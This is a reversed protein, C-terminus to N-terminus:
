LNAIILLSLFAIASITAILALINLTKMTKEKLASSLLFFIAIGILGGLTNGILDTIDSAGIAFIFQLSEYLFSLLFASVIKVTIKLKDGIMSIYIGFPVFAAINLIIESIDIKGNKVASGAYPILNVSRLNM